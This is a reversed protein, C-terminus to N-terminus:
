GCAGSRFLASAPVDREASWRELRDCLEPATDKLRAVLSGVRDAMGCMVYAIGLFYIYDVSFPRLRVANELCCMARPGRGGEGHFRGFDGWAEGNAPNASIAMEFARFAEDERELRLLLGALRTWCRSREADDDIKGTGQRYATVAEDHRGAKEYLTGINIWIEAVDPDVQPIKELAAIAEEYRGLAALEEGLHVWARASRPWMKTASRFVAAAEVSRLRASYARGLDVRIDEVQLDSWDPNLENAKELNAIAKDYEGECAYLTGM